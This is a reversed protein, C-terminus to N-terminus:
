EGKPWCVRLFPPTQATPDALSLHNLLVDRRPSALSNSNLRIDRKDEVRIEAM